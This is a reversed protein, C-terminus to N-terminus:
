LTLYMHTTETFIDQLMDCYVGKVEKKTTMKEAHIRIFEMNYLDNVLTIKLYNAGSANRTLKCVLGGEKLSMFDKSGTMLIFRKGGLQRLITEAIETQRDKTITTM